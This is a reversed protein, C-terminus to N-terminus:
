SIRHKNVMIKMIQVFKQSFERNNVIDLSLANTEVINSSANERRRVKNKCYIVVTNQAIPQTRGM